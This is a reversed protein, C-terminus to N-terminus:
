YNILTYNYVYNTNTITHTQLAAYTAQTTQYSTSAYNANASGGSGISYYNEAQAKSSIVVTTNSRSTSAFVNKDNNSITCICVSSDSNNVSYSNGYYTNNVSTRPMVYAMSAEDNEVSTLEEAYAITTMSFMLILVLCFSIVKKKM